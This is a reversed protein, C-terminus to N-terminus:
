RSDGSKWNGFRSRTRVLIVSLICKFAEPRRFSDLFDLINERTV